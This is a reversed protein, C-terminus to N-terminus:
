PTTREPWNEVTMTLEPGSVEWGDELRWVTPEGVEIVVTADPLNAVSKVGEARLVMPSM